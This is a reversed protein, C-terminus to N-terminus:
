AGVKVMDLWIEPNESQHTIGELLFDRAEDLTNFTPTTYGVSGGFSWLEGDTVWMPEYAKLKYRTQDSPSIRIIAYSQGDEDQWSEIIDLYQEM